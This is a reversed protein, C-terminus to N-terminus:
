GTSLMLFLLPLLHVFKVLHHLIFYRVLHDVGVPLPLTKGINALPESPQEPQHDQAVNGSQCGM